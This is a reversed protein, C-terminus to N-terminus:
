PGNHFLVPDTFHLTYVLYAAAAVNGCKIQDNGLITGSIPSGPTAPRLAFQDEVMVLPSSTVPPNNGCNELQFQLYATRSTTGTGDTLNATVTVQGVASSAWALLCVLFFKPHPRVVGQLQWRCYWRALM